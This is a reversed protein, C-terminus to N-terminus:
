YPPYPESAAQISGVPRAFARGIIFEAFDPAAQASDSRSNVRGSPGPLNQGRTELNKTFDGANFSDGGPGTNAFDRLQSSDM